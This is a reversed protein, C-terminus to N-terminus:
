GFQMSIPDIPISRDPPIYGNIDGNALKEETKEPRWIMKAAPHSPLPEAQGPMAYFNERYTGGPVCYDDWFIGRRRLEPILLEVVDVFTQPM